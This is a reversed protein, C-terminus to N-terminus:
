TGPMMVAGKGKTKKLAESAEKAIQEINRRGERWGVGNWLVHRCEPVEFASLAQPSKM